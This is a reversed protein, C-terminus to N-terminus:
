TSRHERRVPRKRIARRDRHTSVVHQLASTLQRVDVSGAAEADTCTRALARIYHDVRSGGLESSLARGVIRALAATTGPDVTSTPLAVCCTDSTIQM